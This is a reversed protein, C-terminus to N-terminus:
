AAAKESEKDFTNSLTGIGDIEVDVVTGPKMPLVGTSTGCIIIDGPSLTMDRSLRKVLERPSFIMDSVPYDQRVRGNILTKIQLSDPEIDTAIVPGIAGFTDFSKARCWQAFSDDQEIMQIATVDNICTYGFICEDIEADCVDKCKKGIVIGLEGEYMIRGQYSKPRVITEGTAICCSSSKFFYLPEEPVSWKNKLAAAHFNNWLGIIIGPECPVLLELEDLAVSETTAQPEDFMDGSYVTVLGDSLTGFRTAGQHTFRLWHKM